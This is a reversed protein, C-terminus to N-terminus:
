PRHADDVVIHWETYVTQSPGASPYDLVACWISTDDVFVVEGVECVSEDPMGCAALALVGVAVILRRM